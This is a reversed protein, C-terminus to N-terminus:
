EQPRRPQRKQVVEALFSTSTVGMNQMCFEDLKSLTNICHRVDRGGSAGKRWAFVRGEITTIGSIVDPRKSKAIRLAHNIKQRVNTLSENVYFNSPKVRRASALIDRKVDRRCFKAIISRKDPGQQISKSGLRHSVSIDNPNVQINLNSKLLKIVAPACIESDGVEALVAPGSFILSERRSYANEDDVLEELHNVRDNLNKCTKILDLPTSSDATQTIEKTISTQLNKISGTNFELSKVIDVNEESLLKVKKELALIQKSKQSLEKKLQDNEMSVDKMGELFMKLSFKLDTIKSASNLSDLTKEILPDLASSNPMNSNPM